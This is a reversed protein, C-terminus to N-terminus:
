EESQGLTHYAFACGGSLEHSISISCSSSSSSSLSLIFAASSVGTSIRASNNNVPMIPLKLFTQKLLMCLVSCGILIKVTRSVQLSMQGSVNAWICKGMCCNGMTVNAWVVNACLYMQGYLCKGLRYKGLFINAWFSMQGFSKQGSPCKGLCVLACFFLQVYICKGLLCKGLRVNAWFSL